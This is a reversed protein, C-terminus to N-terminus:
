ENYCWHKLYQAAQDLDERRDSPKELESDEEARKVENM